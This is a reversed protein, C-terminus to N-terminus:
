KKVAEAGAGKYRKIVKKVDAPKLNGYTDNGIMIVPALSCCGLCSVMELTFERDPTTEGTHVGLQDELAGSIGKAGQVHCATGHCVRVIHRGVPHLRFQSYFTAVGYVQSLPVGTERSIAALRERSIYGDEEQAKQLAPILRGEQGAYHLTRFDIRRHDTM